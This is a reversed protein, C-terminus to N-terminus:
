RLGPGKGGLGTYKDLLREIGKITDQTAEQLDQQVTPQDM